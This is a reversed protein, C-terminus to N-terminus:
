GLNGIDVNGKLGELTRREKKQRGIEKQPDEQGEMKLSKAIAAEAEGDLRKSFMVLAFSNLFRSRVLNISYQSDEWRAIVKETTRYLENTPFSIEGATRTATG